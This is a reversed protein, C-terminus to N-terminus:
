CHMFRIDGLGQADGLKRVRAAFKFSEKYSLIPINGWILRLFLYLHISELMQKIIICKGDCFKSSRKFKYEM